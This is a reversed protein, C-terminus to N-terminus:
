SNMPKSLSGSGRRARTIYAIHISQLVAGDERFVSHGLILLILTRGLVLSDPSGVQYSM